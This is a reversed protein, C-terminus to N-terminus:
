PSSPLTARARVGHAIRSLDNQLAILSIADLLARDELGLARLPALDAAGMRWPTLTLATAYAALAHERPTRPDAEGLVDCAGSDCLLEAVVRALVERERRSLPADREMAYARWRDLAARTGERLPLAPVPARATAPWRARDPRPLPERAADVSLRPLPSPYDPEIGTADAVRTVYNFFGAITLAQELGEDSVGTARLRALDDVTVLWPAETMLTALGALARERPSGRLDTTGAM